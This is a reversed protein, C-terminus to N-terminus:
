DESLKTALEYVYRSQYMAAPDGLISTGWNEDMKSQSKGHFLGDIRPVVM